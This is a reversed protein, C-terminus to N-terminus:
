RSAYFASSKIDKFVKRMLEISTVLDGDTFRPSNEQNEPHHIFNRIRTPLTCPYAPRPTGDKKIRIWTAAKAVGHNELWAEFGEECYCAADEKCAVAQLHGYLEDHYEATAEKEFAVYSVENLSPYPLVNEPVKEIKTSQDDRCVLRLQEFKLEKVISASHTTLLVQVFPKASLEQLAKVLRRQYDVHQSTEPEEIAYVINPAKKADQKREAEARFFNLLILRKVGSGRKSMPIDEDGSISVADFLKEWKPKPIVPHLSNAVAPNMEKLKELTMSAVKELRGTVVKSIKAMSDELDPNNKLIEKVANKMPDQVEPDKDDNSRDAKFLSYVPLYTQISDWLSKLDGSKPDAELEVDALQLDDSFHRWIAQRMQANKSKDCELGLREVDKKLDASKKLLLEKCEKQQPHRAAIYVKAKGGDAFRKVIELEGSANLLYEDKLTTENGADLNVSEPLDTFRVKIVTEVDGALKMKKNVDEKEMTGEGLFIDLADLVTSKGADNKGIFATLDGITIETEDSYGRFNKISVSTIKM